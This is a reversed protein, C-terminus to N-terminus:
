KESHKRKHKIRKKHIKLKDHKKHNISKDHDKPEMHKEEMHQVTKTEDKHMSHKSQNYNHTGPAVESNALAINTAFAFVFSSIVISLNKMIEGMEM